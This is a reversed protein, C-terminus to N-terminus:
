ELDLDQKASKLFRGFDRDKKRREAHSLEHFASEETLKVFNDYHERGIAGAALAALVACDPETTHSCDRYRCGSALAAIDPFGGEVADGSLVVGFERMGPNDIVLAGSELVILERRVTTHRGEGTASVDATDLLARGALENILTSKGVGSSGVFCYTRGPELTRELEALGARTVTSLGLVPAAIGAARIGAVLAALADAGVLDTKTLLIRADAGGEAVMVLYRELRKVNFDFRCSQVVFAGDLNAAIMQWDHASGPARRRLATRRELVARVLALGDGSRGEACVWDGVCPLDGPSRHRHLWAGPLVARFTGAGDMLLLQDRDVAVVRALADGPGRCGGAREEFWASWGLGKVDM